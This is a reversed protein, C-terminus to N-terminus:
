CRVVYFGLERFHFRHDLIQELDIEERSMPRSAFDGDWVGFIEVRSEGTGRLLEVLSKSNFAEDEDFEHDEIWSSDCEPVSHPFDCGCGSTSGVYQVHPMSFHVAIPRDRDSLAEVSLERAGPTVARLQM